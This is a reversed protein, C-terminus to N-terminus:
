RASKKAAGRGAASKAPAKGAKAAAARVPAKRASAPSGGPKAATGASLKQVTQNLDDIRAILASIDKASPVGLKNLARAVREEFINELKDWHGTAKSSIDSAMNTVRSTAEAIREEAAAQTKRQLKTGEQVLAEFAKSGEAQARAFAGLGAQWIQQASDKVSGQPGAASAHESSDKNVKKVM